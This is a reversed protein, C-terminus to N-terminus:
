IGEGQIHLRRSGENSARIAQGGLKFKSTVINIIVSGLTLLTLMAIIISSIHVICLLYSWTVGTM